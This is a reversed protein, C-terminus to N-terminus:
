ELARINKQFIGNVLCVRSLLYNGPHVDYFSISQWASERGIAHTRVKWPPIIELIEMICM